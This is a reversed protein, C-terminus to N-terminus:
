LVDAFHPKLRKFIHIGSISIFITIVWYYITLNMHEWFWIQNIFTDRYGEVIYYFPNLKMIPKLKSPFMELSWFIPTAWFGIQVFVSIIQGIDKFFIVLSSNIFTLGLLLSISAFIYYIVQFNYISPYYGYILFAMLIIIIFFSHIILASLIKSIPLLKIEFVIKKVLFSNETISYVGSQLSDSIFNWPIFGTMLWLIFPFDKIPKSKFGIEFVFWLVFLSVLPQIFAWIMGFYSGLYRSKLDRLALDIIMKRNKIIEKFYIYSKM